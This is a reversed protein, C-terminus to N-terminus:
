LEDILIPDGIVEEIDKDCSIGTSEAHFIGKVALSTDVVVYECYLVNECVGSESYPECDGDVWYQLKYVDEQSLEDSFVREADKVQVYKYAELNAFYDLSLEHSGSAQVLGFTFFTFLFLYQKLVFVERGSLSM